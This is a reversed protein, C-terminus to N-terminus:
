ATMSSAAERADTVSGGKRIMGVSASAVDNGDTMNVFNGILNM